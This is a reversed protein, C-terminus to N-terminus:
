QIKQRIKSQQSLEAYRFAASALLKGAPGAYAKGGKGDPPGASGKDAGFCQLQHHVPSHVIRDSLGFYISFLGMEEKKAISNGGHELGTM